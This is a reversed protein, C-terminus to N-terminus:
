LSGDKNGSIVLATARDKATRKRFERGLSAVM